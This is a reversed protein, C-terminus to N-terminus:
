GSNDENLGKTPCYYLQCVKLNSLLSQRGRPDFLDPSQMRAVRFAVFGLAALALCILLIGLRDLWKRSPRHPRPMDVLLLM